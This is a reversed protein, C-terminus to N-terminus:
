FDSRFSTEFFPSLIAGVTKPFTVNESRKHFVKKMNTRRNEKPADKACRGCVGSYTYPDCIRRKAFVNTRVRKKLKEERKEPKKGTDKESVKQEWFHSLISIKHYLPQKDSTSVCPHRFGQGFKKQRM